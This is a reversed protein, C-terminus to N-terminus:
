KCSELWAGQLNAGKSVELELGVKFFKAKFTLILKGYINYIKREMSKTM